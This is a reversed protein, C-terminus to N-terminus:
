FKQKRLFAPIEFDEEEESAEQDFLKETHVESRERTEESNSEILPENDESFLHPTYEEEVISNLNDDDRMNSNDNENDFYSANEISVGNQIIENKYNNWEGCADLIVPEFFKNYKALSYSSNIVSRVTAVKDIFPCWYYVKSKM